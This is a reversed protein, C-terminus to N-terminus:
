RQSADAMVRAHYSRNGIPSTHHVQAAPNERCRECVGNARTLATLRTALSRGNQWNSITLPKLDINWNRPNSYGKIHGTKPPFLDLTLTKDEVKTMFTLKRRGDKEITRTKWGKERTPHGTQHENKEKPCPLPCIEV